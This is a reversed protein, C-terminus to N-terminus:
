QDEKLSGEQDQGHNTEKQINLNEKVTRTWASYKSRYFAYVLIRIAAYMAALAAVTVLAQYPLDAFNM